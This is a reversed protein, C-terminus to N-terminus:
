NTEESPVISSSTNIKGDTIFILVRAIRHLLDQPKSGEL